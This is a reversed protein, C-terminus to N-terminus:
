EHLARSLEADCLRMWDSVRQVSLYKNSFISLATDKSSSVCCYISSFKRSECFVSDCQVSIFILEVVMFVIYNTLEYNADFCFCVFLCLFVILWNDSSVLFSSSSVKLEESLKVIMFIQPLLSSWAAVPILDM